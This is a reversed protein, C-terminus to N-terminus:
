LGRLKGACRGARATNEREFAAHQGAYASRHAAAVAPYLLTRRCVARGMSAVRCGAKGSEQRRGCHRCPAVAKAIRSRAARRVSPFQRRKQARSAVPRARIRYALLNAHRKGAAHRALNRCACNRKAGATCLVTVASLPLAAVEPPFTSKHAEWWARWQAGTQWFEAPHATQIALMKNLAYAQVPVASPLNMLAILLPISRPDSGVELAYLLLDSNDTGYRQPVVKLLMDEAWRVKYLTLAMLLHSDFPKAFDLLPQVAEKVDPEVRKLFAADPHYVFLLELAAARLQPRTKQHLLAALRELLGVKEAMERYARDFSVTYFDKVKYSDPIYAGPIYTPRLLSHLLDKRETDTGTGLRTVVETVADQLVDM